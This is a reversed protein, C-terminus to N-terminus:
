KRCDDYNMYIILGSIFVFGIHYEIKIRCEESMLYFYMWVYVNDFAIDVSHSHPYNLLNVHSLKVGEGAM